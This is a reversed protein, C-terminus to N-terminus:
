LGSVIQYSSRLDTVTLNIDNVNIQSSSGRVTYQRNDPTITPLSIQASLQSTGTIWLMYETAIRFFYFQIKIIYTIYASSTGITLTYLGNIKTQIRSKTQTIPV